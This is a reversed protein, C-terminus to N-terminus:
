FVIISISPHNLSNPQTLRHFLFLQSGLLLLDQKPLVFLLLRIFDEFFLYKQRWESFSFTGNWPFARLRGCSSLLLGSRRSRRHPRPWEIWVTLFYSSTWGRGTQWAVMLSNLNKNSLSASLPRSTTSKPTLFGYRPLFCNWLAFFMFSHTAPPPLCSSWLILDAFPSAKAEDTSFVRLRLLIDTFCDRRYSSTSYNIFRLSKNLLLWVRWVVLM